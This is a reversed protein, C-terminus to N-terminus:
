LMRRSSSVARRTNLNLSDPVTAVMMPCAMARSPMSIGWRMHNPM